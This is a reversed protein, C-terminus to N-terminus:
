ASLCGRCHQHRPAPPASAGAILPRRYRPHRRPNRSAGPPSVPASVPPHAVARESLHDQIKAILAAPVRVTRSRLYEGLGKAQPDPRTTASVGPALLGHIVFNVALLNPLEYRDVPLASAETLLERLRGTTLYRRLWAYAQPSTAWLGVNANGGKDGSRAGCLRGLPVDATPGADLAPDRAPDPVAGADPGPDHDHPAQLAAPPAAPDAHHPVALTSGDPLHVQQTVLAAPILAPWYVGFASAGGPPSTTHFGPYGALALETAANSFARGVKAEDPDKVTIRLHATAQESTPADPRDFRLLRVDVEAFQEPGGLVEFLLSTAHEAKQEIDLGTLVMTTTNRYGGLMNLAVKLTDPPPSGRTGTLAVRDPGVQDLGITDFHAVVDPNLYAPPGIEYLLQATVTGTSVLGGTGEHKTIVSSGDAAVEAIPFGPYRRQTIQDLFSYNGGTAQPGCEIVHGAAVAGALADWDDRRWGHWWAAPGTVLSADTVRPCIVVDAGARLAAAIGWGGLYANATVVPLDAKALPLGTDLNTFEHGAAQLEGVAPALDDGTIYAVQANLGLRAALETIKRALGEPNLGGANSVIKVGRELCTGLVDEMQRLFTTAYGLGPDKRRSKWLILMTLEALYDGTLVDIPGALMERAAALRDGYFGSCNAIRVPRAM